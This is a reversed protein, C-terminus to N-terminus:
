ANAPQAAQVQPYESLDVDLVNIGKASAPAASATNNLVAAMSNQADKYSNGGAQDLFAVFNKYDSSTPDLVSAKLAAVYYDYKFTFDIQQVDVCPSEFQKQSTEITFNYYKIKPVYVYTNGSNDTQVAEHCIGVMTVQYSRTKFDWSIRLTSGVGQIFKTASQVLNEPMAIADFVMEIIATSFEITTQTESYTEQEMKFASFGGANTLMNQMFHTVSADWQTTVPSVDGPLVQSPNAKLYAFVKLRMSAFFSAVKDCVERGTAFQPNSTVFSSQLNVFSVLGDSDQYANSDDATKASLATSLILDLTQSASAANNPTAM